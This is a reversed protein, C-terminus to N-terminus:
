KRWLARNAKMKPVRRFAIMKESFDRILTHLLGQSDWVQDIYKLMDIENKAKKETWYQLGGGYVIPEQQKQSPFPSM